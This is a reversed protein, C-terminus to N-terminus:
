IFIHKSLPSITSVGIRAHTMVHSAHIVQLVETNIRPRSPELKKLRFDVDMIHRACRIAVTEVLGMEYCKRVYGSAVTVEPFAREFHCKGPRRHIYGEQGTASAMSQSEPNEWHCM